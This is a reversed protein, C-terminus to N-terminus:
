AGILAEVVNEGDPTSWEAPGPLSALECGNEDLLVTGPLGTIVGMQQLTKFLSFNEYFPLNPLGDALFAKGKDLQPDGTNIPLVLFEDSNYKKAIADLAPMEERCPICWSAWFNVLLKKGKFDAITHPKGAADNFSINAFSRGTGTGNLAALMGVAKADILAARDIQPPCETAKPASPNGVWLTIALAIAASAAALVLVRRPRLKPGPIPTQDTM